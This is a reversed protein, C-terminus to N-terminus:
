VIYMYIKYLSYFFFLEPGKKHVPTNMRLVTLIDAPYLNYLSYM